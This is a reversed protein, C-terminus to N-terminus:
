RRKAGTGNGIGGYKKLLSLIGAPDDPLNGSYVMKGTTTVLFIQPYGKGAALAIYPAVDRPTQGSPDVVDKDVIRWKHGGAKMAATLERDSYLRGREKAADATEEVVIVFLPGAPKPAPDPPPPQPKPEPTPDPEPKPNPNPGPGPKGVAVIVEYRDTAEGDAGVTWCWLRYRGATYSIVTATKGTPDSSAAPPLLALRNSIARWRVLHPGDYGSPVNIPTGKEGKVVLPPDLGATVGVRPCGLALGSIAVLLRLSGMKV